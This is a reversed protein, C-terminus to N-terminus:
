KRCLRDYEVTKIERMVDHGQPSAWFKAIGWSTAAEPYKNAYKVFFADLRKARETDKKKKYDVYWCHYIIAWIIPASLALAPFWWTIHELIVFLIEM